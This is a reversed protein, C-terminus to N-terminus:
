RSWRSGASRARGLAPDRGPAHAECLLPVLAVVPVLWGWGLTGPPTEAFHHETNRYIVYKLLFRYEDWKERAPM